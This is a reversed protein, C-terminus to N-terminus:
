VPHGTTLLKGLPLSLMSATTTGGTQANTLVVPQTTQGLINCAPIVSPVAQITNVQTTSTVPVSVLLSTPQANATAIAAGAAGSLSLSIPQPLGPIQVQLGFRFSFLEM